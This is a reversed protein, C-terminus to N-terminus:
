KSKGRAKAKEEEAPNAQQAENFATQQSLAESGSQAQQTQQAQQANHTEKGMAGQGSQKTRVTAQNNQAKKAQIAKAAQHNQADQATKGAQVPESTNDHEQTVGTSKVNAEVAEHAQQAQKLSVRKGDVITYKEDEFKEQNNAQITQSTQAMESGEPAIFGGRELEAIRQADESEYTFGMGYYQGTYKDQFNKLVTYNM